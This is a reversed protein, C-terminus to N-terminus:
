TGYTAWSPLSSKDDIADLELQLTLALEGFIPNKARWEAPCIAWNWYQRAIIDGAIARIHERAFSSEGNVCARVPNAIQAKLVNIIVDM